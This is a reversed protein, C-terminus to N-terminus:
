RRQRRVDHHRDPAAIGAVDFTVEAEGKFEPDRPFEESSEGTLTYEGNDTKMKIKNSETDITFTINTDSSRV